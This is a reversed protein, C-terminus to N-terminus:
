KKRRGQYINKLFKNKELIYKIKYKIPIYFSNNDIEELLKHSYDNIRAQVKLDSYDIKSISQQCDYLLNKTIKSKKGFISITLENLKTLLNDDNSLEIYNKMIEIKKNHIKWYLKEINKNYTEINYKEEVIKRGLAGRRQRELENGLLEKIALALKKSNKNEVLYGCDPAHTVAPLATNDFIIVPKSFAMAEIAMMGFSEATSPMLFIDCASYANFLEENEITGLEIIRYKDKLKSILNKKGCTM